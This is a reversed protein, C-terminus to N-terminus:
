ICRNTYSISRMEFKSGKRLYISKRTKVVRSGVIARVTKKRGVRRMKRRQHRRNKINNKGKRRDRRDLRTKEPKKTEVRVMKGMKKNGTHIEKLKKGFRTNEVKEALRSKKIKQDSIAWEKIKVQEWRVALRDARM